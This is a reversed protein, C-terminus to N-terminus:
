GASVRGACVGGARVGPGPRLETIGRSHFSLFCTYGDNEKVFISHLDFGCM